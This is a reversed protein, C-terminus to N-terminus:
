YYTYEYRTYGHDELDYTIGSRILQSSYSIKSLDGHKNYDYEVIAEEGTGDNNYTGYTKKTLKHSSNYEYNVKNTNVMTFDDMTLPSSHRRNLKYTHYIQEVVGNEEDITLKDEYNPPACRDFYTDINLRISGTLNYSRDGIIGYPFVELDSESWYDIVQPDGNKGCYWVFHLDHKIDDDIEASISDITGNTEYDANYEISYGTCPIIKHHAVGNSISFQPLTITKNAQLEPVAANDSMPDADAQDNFPDYLEASMINWNKDYKEEYHYYYMKGDTSKVASARHSMVATHKELDYKRTFLVDGFNNYGTESILDGNDNYEYDKAYLAWSDAPINATSGEYLNLSHPYTTKDDRCWSLGYSNYYDVDDSYMLYNDEVRILKGAADYIENRALYESSDEVSIIVTDLREKSKFTKITKIKGKAETDPEPTNESSPETAAETAEPGSSLTVVVTDGKRFKTGPSISQAIITDKASENYETSGVSFTINNGYSDLAYQYDMGIFDPMAYEYESSNAEHLTENLEQRIRGLGCSSISPFLLLAVFVATSRRIEM